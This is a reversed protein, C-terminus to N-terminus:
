TQSSGPSGLMPETALGQSAPRSRRTIPPSRQFPPSACAVGSCRRGADEAARRVSVSRRRQAGGKARLM